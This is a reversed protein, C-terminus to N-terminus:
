VHVVQEGNCKLGQHIVGNFGDLHWKPVSEHQGLSGRILHPVNLDLDFGNAAAIPSLVTIRGKTLSKQGNTTRISWSSQQQHKGITVPRGLPGTSNQESVDITTQQRDNTTQRLKYCQRRTPPGAAPCTLPRAASVERRALV